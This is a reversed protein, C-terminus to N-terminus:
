LRENVDKIMSYKVPPLYIEGEKPKISETKPASKCGIIFILVILYLFKM